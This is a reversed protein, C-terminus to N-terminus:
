LLGSARRKVQADLAAKGHEGLALIKGTAKDRMVCQITSLTKGVSRVMNEIVVTSGQPLPRLYTISLTRSVGGFVWFGERAVPAAAATTTNDALMAVAGGHCNGMSNCLGPVIELEFVVRAEM